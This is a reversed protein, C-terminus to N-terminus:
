LELYALLFKSFALETMGISQILNLDVYTYRCAYTFDWTESRKYSLIDLKGQVESFIAWPHINQLSHHLM